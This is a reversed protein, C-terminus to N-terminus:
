RLCIALMIAIQTIEEIAGFGDGTIGGIMRDSILKMILAAVLGIGIFLLMKQFFLFPVLYVSARILTKLKVPFISAGLGAKVPKSLYAILVMAYRSSVTSALIGVFSVKTLTYVLLIMYLVGVLIAMPGSNGMKMIKLKEERGKQSMFADATDLLGDFHFANFLVYVVFVSLVIVPISRGFIWFFLVYMGGAMYGVIPFDGVVKNPEIKTKIPIRTLFGIAGAISKM